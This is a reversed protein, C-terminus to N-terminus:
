QKRGQMHETLRKVAESDGWTSGDAFKVFLLKATPRVRAKPTLTVAAGEAGSGSFVLGPPSKGVVTTEGPAIGHPKASHDHDVVVQAHHTTLLVAYSIIEMDSINKATVEWTVASKLVAGDTSETLAESGSLSMPSGESSIDSFSVAIVQQQPQVQGFAVTVALVVFCIV